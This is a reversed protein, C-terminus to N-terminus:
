LVKFRIKKVNIKVYKDKVLKRIFEKLTRAERDLEVYLVGKKVRHGQYKNRFEKVHKKQKLPPGKHIVKESLIEDKIIYYILSEKNFHWNSKLITFEHKKLKKGLYDYVKLVKSGVIDKKGKLPKVKGLLLRNEGSEIILDKIRIKKELFFEDSPNRLYERCSKVFTNIKEKSIAASANRDKQTPDVIVLDNQRKSKNIKKFADKKSRYYKGVDIYLPLKWKSVAKILNFFSGYNVILIELVYGSFGKIYSEAGYVNQARCFKKILRVEDCKKLHKKVWRKHLPSVDTINKAYLSDKIDLVPIFEFTYGKKQLQFYDRSGHVRKHKKSLRKHLIESLDKDKYKKYPFKVFIDIDYGGTLFTDKAYSGGLELKAEKIKIGKLVSEIIKKVRQKEKVTPKIEKLIKM